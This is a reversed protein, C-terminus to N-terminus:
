VVHEDGHISSIHAPEMPISLSVDELQKIFLTTFLVHLVPHIKFYDPLDLNM